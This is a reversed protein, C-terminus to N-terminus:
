DVQVSEPSNCMGFAESLNDHRGLGPDPDPAIGRFSIVGPLYRMLGLVRRSLRSYRLIFRLVCLVTFNSRILIKSVMALMDVNRIRHIRPGVRFLYKSSWCFKALYGMMLRSSDSSRCSTVGGWFVRRVNVGGNARAALVKDRM